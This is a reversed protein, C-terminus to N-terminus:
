LVSELLEKRKREDNGSFGKQVGQARCIYNSSSGYWNNYDVDDYTSMKQNKNGASAVMICGASIANEAASSTTSSSPLYERLELIVM